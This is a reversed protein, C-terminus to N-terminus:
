LSRYCLWLTLLVNVNQFKYYFKAHNLFLSKQQRKTSLNPVVRKHYTKAHYYNQGPGRMSKVYGFVPKAKARLFASTSKGSLQRLDTSNFSIRNASSGYAPGWCLYPPPSSYSSCNAGQKWNSVERFHCCFVRFTLLTSLLPWILLGQTKALDQDQLFSQQLIHGQVM